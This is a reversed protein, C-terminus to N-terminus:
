DEYVARIQRRTQEHTDRRPQIRSPSVQESCEDSQESDTSLVKSSRKRKRFKVHLNHNEMHNMLCTRMSYKKCCIKCRYKRPAHSKMHLIKQKNTPFTRHCVICYFSESTPNKNNQPIRETKMQLSITSVDSSDPKGNMNAKDTGNNLGPETKSQEAHFSHKNQSYKRRLYRILRVRGTRKDNDLRNYDNEFTDSNEDSSLVEPTLDQNNSKARVRHTAMHNLFCTRMSYKKDCIKCGYIQPAHAKMHLLQQKKTPFRRICMTCSFSESSPDSDIEIITQSPTPMNTSNVKDKEIREDIDDKIGTTTVEQRSKLHKVNVRYQRRVHKLVHERKAQVRAGRQPQKRIQQVKESPQDIQKDESTDKKDFCDSTKDSDEKSQKQEDSEVHDGHTQMHNLLCARMSYKKGCIKCHYKQPAHTKMHLIQQKRTPFRKSCVICYFSEQSPDIDNELTNTKETSNKLGTTTPQSATLYDNVDVRYHQRVHQLLHDRRTYKFDCMHCAHKKPGHVKRKHSTIMIRNAFRKQCMDCKYPRPVDANHKTYKPPKRLRAPDHTLEHREVVNRHMCPKECIRCVHKNSTHHQNLKKFSDFIKKCAGCKFPENENSSESLKKNQLNMLHKKTSQHRKFLTPFIFAIKCVDCELKKQGHVLKNHRWFERTKYFKFCIKCEIKTVKSEYKKKKNDPRYSIPLSPSSKHSQDERVEDEEDKSPEIKIEAIDIMDVIETLKGKETEELSIPLIDFTASEVNSHTEQPPHLNELAFNSTPEVRQDQTKSLVNVDDILESKLERLNELMNQKDTSKRHAISSERHKHNHLHEGAEFSDGCDTGGQVMTIMINSESDDKNCDNDHQTTMSELVGQVEQCRLRFQHFEILQMRCITCITRSMSDSTSIKISLFEMIWRQMNEEKFIDDLCEESLCLRCMQRVSRSM